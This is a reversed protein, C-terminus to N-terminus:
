YAGEKRLLAGPTELLIVLDMWLSWNKAYWTDLYVREAYDLGNRGSIQWLGTMGPKVEYYYELEEGYRALEQEVIPRPGVLSMDGKLVNLLQPLEDLSYRRLWKGLPTVRPDEKLKFSAQWEKRADPDTTLHHELRAHANPVMTRFKLCRFPSGGQGIRDHAFFIPGGDRQVLLTLVAFVPLLLLMLIVATIQDFIRKLLRPGARALNNQLDLFLLEQRYFHHLRAGFLPLGRLDPTVKLEHCHRQIRAILPTLRESTQKELAIVVTGEGLQRLTQPQELDLPLVPIPQGAVTMWNNADAAGSAPNLFAVVQYGMQRESQLASAADIANQGTGVIVAPRQWLRLRLLLSKTIFRMAPIAALAGLWMGFYWYRSFPLKALYQLGADLLATFLVMKIVIALEDWHPRRRAYLGSFYFMGVLFVVLSVLIALRNPAMAEAWIDPYQLLEANRRVLFLMNAFVLAGALALIDSLM